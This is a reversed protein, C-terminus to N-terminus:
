VVCKRQLDIIRQELEAISPGGDLYARQAAEAPDSTLVEALGEAYAKGAEMLCHQKIREQKETLQETSM